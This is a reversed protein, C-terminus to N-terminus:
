LFLREAAERLSLEMRWPTAGVQSLEQELRDNTTQLEKEKPTPEVKSSTRKDTAQKEKQRLDAWATVMSELLAM